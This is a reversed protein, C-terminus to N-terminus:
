VRVIGDPDRTTAERVLIPSLLAFATDLGYRSKSDIPRERRLLAYAAFDALQVFYSQASDKFFPDEVVRQLPINKWSAGADHWEGYRSPIPNYVAMRRVLRTYAIENGADCILVAHTGKARMTRDIRTLLWRLGQEHREKPSVSNFLRAGRLVATLELAQRFITARQWKTVIQESPRGRGSVFKWAHLEEYVRIGYAQRLYRRFERIQRLSPYWQDVPVALASYVALHEDWSEDLYILHM